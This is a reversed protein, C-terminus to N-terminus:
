TTISSLDVNDDEVDIGSADNPPIVRVSSGSDDRELHVEFSYVKDGNGDLTESASPVIRCAKWYEGGNHALNTTADWEEDEDLFLIVAEGSFSRRDDPLDIATAGHYNAIYGHHCSLVVSTPILADVTMSRKEGQAITKIPIKSNEAQRDTVTIDKNLSGTSILGIKAFDTATGSSLEGLSTTDGTAKLFLAFHNGNSYGGAMSSTPTIVAM